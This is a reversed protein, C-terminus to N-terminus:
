GRFQQYGAPLEVPAGNATLTVGSGAEVRGVRTLPLGHTQEFALAGEAAFSPPLAALLEYEEGSVLAQEPSGAAAHLPVLEREIVARVESAAALHGADGLLGDSLDIMARAGRQKLWRAEAIRPGPRAFRERAQSDPEVGRSWADLAAAPAGLAGTVWLADEPAAGKRHVPDAARGVVTVDIVLRESGVLDGGWVSAGVSAAAEGAGGMLEAVMEEPWEPTVGLSVMVGAPEAAVAALDSLAAATARWGLEAPSLWGARFHTGEVAVDTSIALPVGGVSVLACDDGAPSLQEGLRRWIARIRDFEGGSGLPTHTV